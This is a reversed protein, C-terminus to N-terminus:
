KGSTLMIVLGILVLIALVVGVVVGANGAAGGGQGAVEIGRGLTRTIDDYPIPEACRPCITHYPSFMEASCNNCRYVPQTTGAAAAAADSM